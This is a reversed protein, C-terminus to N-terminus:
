VRERCSARGIQSGAVQSGRETNALGAMQILDYHSLMWDERKFEGFEHVVANHEEDDHVPVDDPVLNGIKGITADRQSETEAVAACSQSCLSAVLPSM